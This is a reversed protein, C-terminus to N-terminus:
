GALWALDNRSPSLRADRGAAGRTKSPNGYTQFMDTSRSFATPSGGKATVLDGFIGPQRMLRM